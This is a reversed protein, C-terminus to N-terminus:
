LHLLPRAIEQKEPMSGLWLATFAVFRDHRRTPLSPSSSRPLPSPCLICTRSTKERFVVVVHLNTYTTACTFRSAHAHVHAYCKSLQAEDRLNGFARLVSGRLSLYEFESTIFSPRLSPVCIQVSYSLRQARLQQQPLHSSGTKPSASPPLAFQFSSLILDAAV